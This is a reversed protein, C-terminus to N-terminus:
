PVYSWLEWGHVGDRASFYLRGGVATLERPGSPFTAVPLTGADSGDSEFLAWTVDDVGGEFCLVGAVDTLHDAGIDRVLATGASTGDSKWLHNAVDDFNAVYLADGVEAMDVYDDPFEWDFPGIDAISTTGAVTGDSVWLQGDNPQAVFALGQGFRTLVAPRVHNALRTAGAMSTTTMWLSPETFTDDLGFYLTSGVATLDYATGRHLTTGTLEATTAAHSKWLGLGNEFTLYLTGAVGATEGLRGRNLHSVLRTGDRTGDSRWIDDNAEDGFYTVRGFYLRGGVRTLHSIQSSRSGPTIDRVMRTGDHTGDSMWLERGHVGDNATFYLTQGVATLEQPSGDASGPGINRVIRTGARTGNSRWLERGHIGDNATFFLTGAVDVLYKPGSSGGANIDKVLAPAADAAVPTAILSVTLAATALATIARVAWGPISPRWM